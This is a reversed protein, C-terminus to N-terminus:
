CEEEIRRQSIAAYDASAEIGWANLKCASAAPFITGSGCCPDLIYDGPLCSRTLLEVYLEVPKQAAHERTKLNSIGQITDPRLADFLKNGKVACLIFEHTRLLGYPGWAAHGTTGKYWVLPVRWPRWGVKRAHNRLYVFLDIDCFMYIHAQEACVNWSYELIDECMLQAHDHTDKYEHAHQAADGFNEANLGYPPDAIVCTFKPIGAGPTAIVDEFHAHRLTHPSSPSTTEQLNARLDREFRRTLISWAEREDRASAVDRDDLSDAIIVAKSIATAIANVNEGTSKVLERATDTYTQNENQSQRLTQLDGLALVREQWTLDERKLNEDLEAERLQIETLDTIDIVPLKNAPVPSGDCSFLRSAEYLQKIARWRREGAVLVNAGTVVPPHLLGLSAISGALTTIAESAFERRHRSPPIILDDIDIYRM